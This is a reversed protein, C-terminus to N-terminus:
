KKRKHMHMNAFGEPTMGGHANQRIGGPDNEEREHMHTKAFGEPTMGGHANQRLLGDAIARHLRQTSCVIAACSGEM